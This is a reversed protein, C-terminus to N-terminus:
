KCQQGGKTKAQTIFFDHTSHMYINIIRESTARQTRFDKGKRQGVQVWGMSQWFFNSILDDACGCSWDAVGLTEGYKIVHHLLARGRKILRADEQLCIQTINGKRINAKPRGFSSLCFGVPDGNETIVFLKANCTIQWGKGIKVGNIAGEYAMRPIFGISKFEKKGLSLIYSIDSIKAQRVQM